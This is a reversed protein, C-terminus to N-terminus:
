ASMPAIIEFQLRRAENMGLRRLRGNLPVPGAIYEITYRDRQQRWHLVGTSTYAFIVDSAAVQSARKDDTAVKASTAAPFNTTVFQGAVTDFWYLKIVGDETFTLTPQMNSDFALSVATLVGALTLFTSEPVSPASLRITQGIIRATWVQVMRGQSPDNLAIGGLEYSVLLGSDLSDPALFPAPVPPSSVVNQPLM